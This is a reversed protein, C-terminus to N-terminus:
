RTKNETKNDHKTNKLEFGIGNYLESVKNELAKLAARVESKNSILSGVVAEGKIRKLNELAHKNLLGFLDKMEIEFLATLVVLIDLGSIGAFNGLFLDLTKISEKVRESNKQMKQDVDSKDMVLKNRASLISLLHSLMSNEVVNRKDSDTNGDNFELLRLFGQHTAEKEKLFLQQQDLVTIPGETGPDNPNQEAINGAFLKYNTKVHSATSGADIIAKEFNETATIMAKRLMIVVETILWASGKNLTSEINFLANLEDIVKKQDDSNTTESGKLRMYIVAEIFPRMYKEQGSGIDLDDEDAFPTAVRKAQPFIEVDGNVVLPLVNGRTRNLLSDSVKGKNFHLMGEYEEPTEKTNFDSERKELEKLYDTYSIGEEFVNGTNLQDIKKNTESKKVSPLGLARYFANIRSEIPGKAEQSGYSRREDITKIADVAFRNFDFDLGSIRIKTGM